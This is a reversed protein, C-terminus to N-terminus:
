KAPTVQRVVLAEPEAVLEGGALNAVYRLLELVPLNWLMLNLGNEPSKLDLNVINVGVQDPDHQQAKQRIFALSEELSAGRFEARPIHISVSKALVRKTDPTVIEVPRKWEAAPGPEVTVAAAGYRVNLGAVAAVYHLAEALSIERLSLTITGAKAAAAPAIEINFDAHNPDLQKAQQRLFGIGEPLTADRFALQPLKLRAAREALEGKAAGAAPADQKAPEAAQLPLVLLILAAFRRLCRTNM